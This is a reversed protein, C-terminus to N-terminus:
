LGAEIGLHLRFGADDDFGYAVDAGVMGGPSRWRVGVGAGLKEEAKGRDVVRDAVAMGIDNAEQQLSRGLELLPAVAGAAGDQGESGAGTVSLQEVQQLLSGVAAAM